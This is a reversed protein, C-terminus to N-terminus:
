RRLTTACGSDLLLDALETLAASVSNVFLQPYLLLSQVACLTERVERAYVVPLNVAYEAADLVDRWGAVTAQVEGLTTDIKNTKGDAYDKIKDAISRTRGAVGSQSDTPTVYGPPAQRAIIGDIFSQTMADREADELDFLALQEADTLDNPDFNDLSQSSVIRYVMESQNQLQEEVRMGILQARDTRTGIDALTDGSLGNRFKYSVKNLRDLVTLNIDYRFLLSERVSRSLKPLGTPWVLFYDKESWNWFQMQYSQGGENWRYWTEFFNVLGQWRDFGDVRDLPTPSTANFFPANNGFQGWGTTGNLTLQGIGLGFEDIFAGGRTQTVTTRSPRDLMYTEPMLYMDYDWHTGTEESVIRFTIKHKKQRFDANEPREVSSLPM